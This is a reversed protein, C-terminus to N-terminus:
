QTLGNSIYLYYITSKILNTKKKTQKFKFVQSLTSNFFLVNQYFEKQFSEQTKQTKNARFINSVNEHVYRNMSSM